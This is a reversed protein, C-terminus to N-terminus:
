TLSYKQRYKQYLEQYDSIAMLHEHDHIELEEQGAQSLYNAIKMCRGAMREYSNVIDNLVMGLEVTCEGNLLRKVHREKVSGMLEEMVQYCAYVEQVTHKEFMDVTNDLLNTLANEQVRLEEIADDSFVGKKNDLNKYAIAINCVQDSITEIDSVTHLLVSLTQSERESLTRRSLALLYNCIQNEYGDVLDESEKVKTVTDPDYADTLTRALDFSRRTEAFM